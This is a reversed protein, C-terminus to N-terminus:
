EQQDFYQYHFLSIVDMKRKKQAKVRIEPKIIESLFEEYQQLVLRKDFSKNQQLATVEDLHTVDKEKAITKELSNSTCLASVHM